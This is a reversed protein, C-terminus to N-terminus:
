KCETKSLLESPTISGDTKFTVLDDAFWVTPIEAVTSASEGDKVVNAVQPGPVGVWYRQVESGTVDERYTDSSDCVIRVGNETAITAGPTLEAVKNTLGLIGTDPSTRVRAGDMNEDHSTHLQVVRTDGEFPGDEISPAKDANCSHLLGMGLVGTAALLAGGIRRRLRAQEPSRPTTRDIFQAFKQEVFSLQKTREYDNSM